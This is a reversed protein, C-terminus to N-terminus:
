KTQSLEKLEAEALHRQKFAANSGLAKRLAAQAQAVQKTEKYIMGLHYLFTPNNPERSVAFQLQDRALV